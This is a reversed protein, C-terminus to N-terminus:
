LPQGVAWNPQRATTSAHVLKRNLVEDPVVRDFRRNALRLTDLSEGVDDAGARAEVDRMSRARIQLVRNRKRRPKAPLTHLRYRVNGGAANLAERYKVVKESPERSLGADPLNEDDGTVSGRRCALDM